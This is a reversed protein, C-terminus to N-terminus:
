LRGSPRCLQQSRCRQENAVRGPRAAASAALSEMRSDGQLRIRPAVEIATPDAATMVLLRHSALRSQM